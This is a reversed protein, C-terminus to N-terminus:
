VFYTRLPPVQPGLPFTQGLPCALLDNQWCLLEAVYGSGYQLLM